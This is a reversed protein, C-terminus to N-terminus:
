FRNSDNQVSTNLVGLVDTLGVSHDDAVSHFRLNLFADVASLLLLLFLLLLLLPPMSMPSASM